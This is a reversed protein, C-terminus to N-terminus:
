ARPEEISATLSTTLSAGPALRLAQGAAQAAALNGGAVWPEVGLAYSGALPAARAGGYPQWSVIWGFVAPDWELRFALERGPSEVCAWGGALDTLYVDDHSEAEPGAVEQLDIRRGDRGLAHPWPSHQGPQLRATQEYPEPITVVTRASSTLRAGAGVLPPGLVVHHGWVLEHAEDGSNTV